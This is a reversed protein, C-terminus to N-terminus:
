DKITVMAVTLSGLRARVDNVGRGKKARSLMPISLDQHTFHWAVEQRPNPHLGVRQLSMDRITRAIHWDRIGRTPETVTSHDLRKSDVRPRTPELKKPFMRWIWWRCPGSLRSRTQRSHPTQTEKPNRFKSYERIPDHSYGPNWTAM